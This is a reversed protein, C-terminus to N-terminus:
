PKTAVKKGRRESVCKIGVIGYWVVRTLTVWAVWTALDLPCRDSCMKIKKQGHQVAPLIKAELWPNFRPGWCHFHWTRVVM